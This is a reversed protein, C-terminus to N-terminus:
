ILANSTKSIHKLTHWIEPADIGEFVLVCVEGRNPGFPPGDGVGGVVGLDGPRLSEWGERNQNPVCFRCKRHGPYYLM